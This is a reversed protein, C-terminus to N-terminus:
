QGGNSLNPGNGSPYFECVGLGNKTAWVKGDPTRYYYRSGHIKWQPSYFNIENYDPSQLRSKPYKRKVVELLRSLMVEETVCIRKIAM